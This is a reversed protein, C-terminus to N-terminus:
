RCSLGDLMDYGLWAANTGQVGEKTVHYFPRAAPEDSFFAPKEGKFVILDFADYWEQLCCPLPSCRTGLGPLSCSTGQLQWQQM